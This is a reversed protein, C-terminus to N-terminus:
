KHRREGERPAKLKGAPEAVVLTGRMRNHLSCGINYTGPKLDEGIKLVYTVDPYILHDSVVHRRGFHQARGTIHVSHIIRSSNHFIITDGKSVEIKHPFFDDDTVDVDVDKAVALSSIGIIALLEAVPTVRWFLNRQWNNM